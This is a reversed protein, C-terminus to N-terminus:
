KECKNKNPNFIGKKVELVGIVLLFVGFVKKLVESSLYTALFSGFIAGLIGFSAIPIVLKLIVKKNKIHILLAFITMPISSLLNISQAIKPDINAFLILAPILITGGGMGMGGIIGSFFGLLVLFM